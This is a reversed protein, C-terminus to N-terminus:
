ARKEIEYVFLGYILSYVLPAVIHVINPNSTHLLTEPIRLGFHGVLSYLEGAIAGIVFLRRRHDKIVHHLFLELITYVLGYIVPLIMALTAYNIKMDKIQTCSLKNYYYGLYILPFISVSSGILFTKLLNM